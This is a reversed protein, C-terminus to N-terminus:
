PHAGEATREAQEFLEIKKLRRSQELYDRKLEAIRNLISTRDDDNPAIGLEARLQGIRTALEQDLAEDQQAGLEFGHM